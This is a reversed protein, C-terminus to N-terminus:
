RPPGRLPPRLRHRAPSRRPPALFDPLLHRSRPLLFLLLAFAFTLAALDLAASSKKVLAEAGLSIDQDSHPVSAAADGHHVGSDTTHLSVPPESGDFCLHLHAGGVRLVVIVACLLVTLLKLKRPSFM